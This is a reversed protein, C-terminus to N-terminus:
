NGFFGNQFKLNKIYLMAEYVVLSAPILHDLILKVLTPALLRYSIYCEILRKIM